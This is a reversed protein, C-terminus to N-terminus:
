DDTEEDDSDFTASNVRCFQKMGCYECPKEKQLPTISANGSRMEAAIATLVETIEDEIDYFAEESTLANGKFAETPTPVKKTPETRQTGILYNKNVNENLALIIEDDDLILGERTFKESIKKQLEDDSIDRNTKQPSVNTSIYMVGAPKFTANKDCGLQERFSESKSNCIAFLYM